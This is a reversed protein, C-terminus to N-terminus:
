LIDFIHTSNSKVALRSLTRIIMIVVSETDSRARIVLTDIIGDSIFRLHYKDAM